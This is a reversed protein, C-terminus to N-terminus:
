EIGELYEMFIITLEEEPSTPKEYFSNLLEIASSRNLKDTDYLLFPTPINKRKKKLKWLIRARFNDLPGRVYVKITGGPEPYNDYRRITCILRPNNLKSYEKSFRM